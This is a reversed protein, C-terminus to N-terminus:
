KPTPLIEATMYLVIGKAEGRPMRVILIADGKPLKEKANLAIRTPNASTDINEIIEVSVDLTVSHDANNVRPLVMLGSGLVIDSGVHLKASVGDLTAIVPSWTAKVGMEALRAKLKALPAPEIPMSWSLAESGATKPAQLVSALDRAQDPTLRFVEGKIMVQRPPVDLKRITSMQEKVAKADGRVVLTDEKEGLTISNIGRPVLSPKDQAEGSISNPEPIGLLRLMMAAQVYELVISSSVKGRRGSASAALMASVTLLLILVPVLRAIRKAM